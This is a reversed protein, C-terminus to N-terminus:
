IEVGEEELVERFKRIIKELKKLEKRADEATAVGKRGGAFTELNKLTKRFFFNISDYNRCLYRCTEHLDETYEVLVSFGEKGTPTLKAQLEEDYNHRQAVHEGKKNFASECVAPEFLAGRLVDNVSPAQVCLTKEWTVDELKTWVERIKAKCDDIRYAQVVEGQVEAIFQELKPHFYIPVMINQRPCCEGVRLRENEEVWDKMSQM